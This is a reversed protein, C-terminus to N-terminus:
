EKTENSKKNKIKPLDTTEKLNIKINLYKAYMAILLVVCLGIIAYQPWPTHVYWFSKIRHYLAESISGPVVTFYLKAAAAIGVSTEGNLIKKVPYGEIYAFYEGPETKIPLNLEVQVVQAKGPELSFRKPSFHFWSAIALHEPQNEHYSVGVEYDAPEDGTNIVTLAPLNYISGPKLKDDVQIKGTGIGVGIKAVALDIPKILFFSLAILLALKM